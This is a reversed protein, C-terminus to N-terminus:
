APFEPRALRQRAHIRNGTPGLDALLRGAVGQRLKSRFPPHPGAPAHTGDHQFMSHVGGPFAHQEKLCASCPTKILSLENRRELPTDLTFTETKCQHGRRSESRVAVIRLQGNSQLLSPIQDNFHAAISRGALHDLHGSHWKCNHTISGAFLSRLRWVTDTRYVQVVAICYRIEGHFAHLFSYPADQLKQVTGASEIRRVHQIDGVYGHLSDADRM